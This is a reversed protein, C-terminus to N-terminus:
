RRLEAVLQNLQQLAAIRQFFRPEIGVSAAAEDIAALQDAIQGLMSLVTETQEAIPEVYPVTAARFKPVFAERLERVKAKAKGIEPDIADLRAQAEKIPKAAFTSPDAQHAWIAKRREDWVAQRENRLAMLAAEAEALKAPKTVALADRIAAPSLDIPKPNLINSLANM